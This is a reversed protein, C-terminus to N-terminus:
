AQVGDSGYREGHGRDGGRGLGSAIKGRAQALPSRGSEDEGTRQQQRDPTGRHLDRHERQRRAPQPHRRPVPPGERGLRRGPEERSDEQAHPHRHEESEGIGRVELAAGAGREVVQAEEEAPEEHDPGEASRLAHAPEEECESQQHGALMCPEGSLLGYNVVTGGEALCDALRMVVSGGIADIALRPPTGGTVARVREALDAGDVVVVDAGIAELPAALAARRVVNVTRVGDAGALRILNSGVGSNAADQIVWDGPQLDVYNRLMMLATAPNVKLMALQHPDADAPV